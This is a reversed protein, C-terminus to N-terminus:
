GANFGYKDKMNEAVEVISQDQDIYLTRIQSKQEEWEQLSIRNYPRRAPPPMPDGHGDNANNENMSLEEYPFYVFFILITSDAVSQPLQPYKPTSISLWWNTAQPWQGSCNCGAPRVKM